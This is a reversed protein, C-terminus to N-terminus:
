WQQRQEHDNLVYESRNAGYSYRKEEERKEERRKEERREERKERKEEAERERERKRVLLICRAVVM